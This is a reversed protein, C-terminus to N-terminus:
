TLREIWLKLINIFGADSKLVTNIFIDITYFSCIAALMSLAFESFLKRM